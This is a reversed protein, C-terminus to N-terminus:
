AAFLYEHNNSEILVEGVDFKFSTDIIPVNVSSFLFPTSLETATERYQTHQTAIGNSTISYDSGYLVWQAEEITIISDEPIFCIGEAPYIESFDDIIKSEWECFTDDNCIYDPVIEIFHVGEEESYCYRVRVDTFIDLLEKVKEKIFEKSTM